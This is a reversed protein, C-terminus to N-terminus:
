SRGEYPPLSGKIVKGALSRAFPQPHVVYGKPIKYGPLREMLFESLESTSVEQGSGFVVHAVPIEGWAEDAVSVVVVEHVSDHAGLALEVEACYVNLGGSILMEKKRGTIYYFGDEDRRGLDGTLLWGDRMSTTAGEPLNHYGLMTAASRCVIEGVVGPPVPSGSEDVVDVEAVLTPLGVSDPKDQVRDAPMLLMTSPLESLGYSPRVPVEGFRETIQAMLRSSVHEGGTLVFRLSRLDAHFEEDVAAVRRLVAPALFVHTVSEREITRLLEEVDLGGSPHIVLRGGQWLTPLTLDQLAASWALSPVVLTVSGRDIGFDSVQSLANWLMTDHTHVAAKPRGSTGSTYQMLIRDGSSPSGPPAIDQLAPPDAPHAQVELMEFWQVERGGVSAVAESVVQGFQTEFVIGAAGSDNIIHALEAATVYYGVPVVAGGAAVIAFFHELWQRSNGSLLCVVDGRSLGGLRLRVALQEISAALQRYSTAEGQWTIAEDASARHRGVVANLGFRLDPTEDRNM